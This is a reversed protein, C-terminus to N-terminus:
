SGRRRRSVQAVVRAIQDLLLQGGGQALLELFAGAQLGLDALVQGPQTM